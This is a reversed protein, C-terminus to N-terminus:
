SAVQKGASLLIVKDALTRAQLHNHSSFVLSAKKEVLYNLIFAEILLISASDLYNFPEDMLLVRPETIFARAIAVKQFEGGSLSKARQEILEIINLKELITHIKSSYQKKPVRQFKLALVLNEYVSGRFMYPKQPLFSIAQASSSPPKFFLLSGKQPTILRALLSLLTSKGSGNEGILVTIKQAPICLDPISLSFNDGYHYQLQHFQYLQYLPPM